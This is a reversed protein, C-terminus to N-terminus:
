FHETGERSRQNYPNELATRFAEMEKLSQALAPRTNLPQGSPVCTSAQGKGVKVVRSHPQTGALEATGESVAVITNRAGDVSIMFLAVNINIHASYTAVQLFAQEFQSGSGIVRGQHLEFGGKEGYGTITIRTDHGLGLHNRRGLLLVVTAGEETRVEAGVPLAPRSRGLAQWPATAKVRYFVPGHHRVVKGLNPNIGEYFLAAAYLSAVTCCLTTIWASAMGFYGGRLIWASVPVVAAFFALAIGVGLVAWSPMDRAGPVWYVEAWSMGALMLWLGLPTLLVIPWTYLNRANHAEVMAKLVVGTLGFLILLSATHHAKSVPDRLVWYFNERIAEWIVGSSPQVAAMFPIPVLSTEM